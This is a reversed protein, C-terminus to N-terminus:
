KIPLQIIFTSGENEKTEVKLEGGHGNTIIDYSLSLGLGTGQGTPKTTFFPQFIKEKIEDPIGFGNDKVQIEILGNLNNTSVLVEPKYGEINEKTKEYVAFFANNILNLLVRGIEQPIANIKPLSEDLETKFDANFDKDKARLGHYSLRLYEDALINIDTPEKEGATTRSHQLMGKVIGDARKGHHKIKDENQAIDNAIENVEEWDKNDIEQKLEEILESNVESFNNVFNLPNQIEHAIGATLEGLSAMKESQILQSQTAKLEELSKNLDQTRENVQEELTEKQRELIAKKEDSIQIVKKTEREREEVIKKYSLSIYVLFIIPSSLLVITKLLHEIEIFSDLFYKHLFVFLLAGITLVAMAIVVIWEIRKIKEWSSIVLYAFYGMMLTNLIGFPWSINFVHGLSSAFPMFLLILWTIWSIKRKLVYETIILTLVHMLPLSVSNTFLFIFKELQYSTQSFYSYSSGISALLVFLNLTTVLQFLKQAPNLLLLLLLLLFLLGSISINLTGVIYSMKIKNKVFENYDPGTIAILKHLNSPNLRLERPTFTTEYDVFHIAILNEKGPILKIARAYKLIPNFAEYPDETNGFSHQLVGNVYIDTAAWLDRSVGLQLRELNRDPKVSIRFWGEIRGNKDAMKPSLELPNLHSWNSTNLDVSEWGNNNGEKFIWTDLETLLIQQHNNFQSSTLTAVDSQSQCFLFLFGVLILSALFRTMPNHYNAFL